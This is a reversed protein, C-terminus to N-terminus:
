RALSTAAAGEFVTVEFHDRGPPQRYFTLFKAVQEDYYGSSVGAAASAESDWFSVLLGRGEANQMVLVGQYGPQAAVAPLVMERFRALAKDMSITLTDIEFQTVRAYVAFEV